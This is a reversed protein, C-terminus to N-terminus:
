SSDAQRTSVITEIYLTNDPRWYTYYVKYEGLIIRRIGEWHGAEEIQYMMPNQRLLVLRCELM